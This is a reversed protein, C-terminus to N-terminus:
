EINEPKSNKKRTFFIVAIAILALVAMGIAIYIIIGTKSDDKKDGDDDEDETPEVSSDDAVSEPESEDPAPVVPAGILEADEKNAIDYGKMAFALDEDLRVRAKPTMDLKNIIKGLEGLKADDYDKDGLSDSFAALADVLSKADNENIADLPIFVKNVRDIAYQLATKASAKLDSTPTVANNRFVGEKLYKGTGKKLYYSSEFYASGNTKYEHCLEAQEQMDTPGFDQTYIGLGVVTFARDGALQVESPISNLYALSYSMPFVIDLWGNNLWTAFDQYNHTLSEVPDPVVDAGLMVDPKVRDIMNRIRQVFDTIYQARFDVWDNWYDAYINYQPRIGYKEEFADLIHENYGYDTEADRTVYRIYDLQFSDIDYKTIVYEYSKLLFDQVEPNSLDLMYYGDAAITNTTEGTNSVSLWDPRKYGVSYRSNRGNANGVHAIPFWTHLEMGRKHCADIYAQLLDFHAFQPNVEFLSDEPMPMITCNNYITEVCVTNIGNDYLTQVLADVEEASTEKPRVWIARYEVTRSESIARNILDAKEEITDCDVALKTADKTSNYTSKATKVDNELSQIASEVSDYDIFDLNTKATNLKEKLTKLELDMSNLAAKEDYAVTVTKDVPDYSASMGLRANSQLWKAGVGHASIVFSGEAEPVKNDNGGIASIIGGECVVEFGWGNSGTNQGLINYIVVSDADRIVNIGLIDREMSYFVVKNDPTNSVSVVKTKANYYVYQGVKVNERVWTDMMDNSAINDHGSLVFGNEPIPSNGASSVSICVNNEIIAEYGYSNTATVAGYDPTYIILEGAGRNRNIATAVVITPEEASGSFAFLPILMLVALMVTFFRTHKKM